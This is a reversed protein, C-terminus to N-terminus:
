VLALIIPITIIRTDHNSVRYILKTENICMYRRDGIVIQDKAFKVKTESISRTDATSKTGSLRDILDTSESETSDDIKPEQTTGGNAGKEGDLLWYFTHENNSYNSNRNDRPYKLNHLRILERVEPSLTKYEDRQVFIPKDPLVNVSSSPAGRSDPRRADGRISTGNPKRGHHVKTQNISIFQSPTMDLYGDPSSDVGVDDEEDDEFDDYFGHMGHNMVKRSKGKSSRQELEKDYRVAASQLLNYYVDFTVSTGTQAALTNATNAVQRLERVSSVAQKLTQFKIADSIRDAVNTQLENYSRVQAAWYLIFANAGKKWSDDFRISTIYELKESSKMEAATSRTRLTEFDKFASQADSTDEYRRIIDRTNDTQFAYELVSFIFEQKAEWLAQSDVDTAPVFTPSLVDGCDHTKATTVFTRKWSDMMEDQTLKTYQTKDRKISKKFLDLETKVPSVVPKGTSSPNTQPGTPSTVVRSAIPIRLFARFDEITLLLFDTCSPFNGSNQYVLHKIWTILNMLRRADGKLFKWDKFVGSKGSVQVSVAFDMIDEDAVQLIDEIHDIPYDTFFHRYLFRSNSKDLTPPCLLMETLVHEKAADSETTSFSM